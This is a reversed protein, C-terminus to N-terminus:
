EYALLRQYDEETDVDLAISPEHWPLWLPRHKAFVQRGGQDGEVAALDPFARRDFLVPNGRRGDVIIATIAPLQTAHATVLQRVLTAPIQPQDVLMFVAGGVTPPLAALGAKVSSSQGAAWDPNHVIQVALGALASEVQEAYAGVVVLVPDLGAQLATEAVAQVFTQGRWPLLQKPRALRKARGGALVIGAVKQHAALIQDEPQQAKLNAVLVSDYSSLLDAALQGAQSAQRPTDAQNLLAIKRATPPINKLGGAPHQLVRALHAPEILAQEPLEALAAFRAPRHVHTASLSQNLGHLGAVVIVTDVFDPIPPEHEAPAKLPRRRSGDAEILLPVQHQDALQKVLALIELSLGATRHHRETPGTLLTTGDPLAANLQALDAANNIVFHQDAMALQRVALHTSTSLLVPPTLQRALAFLASTKGGAGVLALRPLPGLQLADSLKM